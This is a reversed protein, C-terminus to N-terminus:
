APLAIGAAAAVLVVAGIALGHGLTLPDASAVGRGARAGANGARRCVALGDRPQHWSVSGSTSDDNFAVPTSRGHKSRIATPIRHPTVAMSTYRTRVGNMSNWCSIGISSSGEM